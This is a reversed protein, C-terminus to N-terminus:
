TIAAAKEAENVPARGIGHDAQNSVEGFKIFARLTPEGLEGLYPVRDRAAHVRM